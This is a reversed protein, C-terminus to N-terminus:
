KSGYLILIDFLGASKVEKLSVLHEPLTAQIKEAEVRMGQRYRIYIRDYNFQSKDLNNVKYGLLRLKDVLSNVAATGAGSNYVLVTPSSTQPSLLNSNNASEGKLSADPQPQSSTPAPKTSTSGTSSIPRTSQWVAWIAVAVLLIIIIWLWVSKSGLENIVKPKPTAKKPATVVPRSVQRRRSFDLDRAM